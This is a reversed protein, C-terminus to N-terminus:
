SHPADENELSRQKCQYLMGVALVLLSGFMGVNIISITHAESQPDGFLLGVTSLVFGGCSFVLLLNLLQTRDCFFDWFRETM